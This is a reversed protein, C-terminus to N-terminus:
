VANSHPSTSLIREYVLEGDIWTAQVNVASFDAYADACSRDLLCLDAKEGVVLQRPAAGAESSPKTYLALADNASIAENPGLKGPRRVASAMAKWPNLDGFPADSGGAIGIGADVFSKLRWLHPLEHSEVEKLYADQRETIFHPQTVVTLGLKMIWEIITDDAIAAHEIRDGPHVGADEIAALSLMMEARTVCHIAVARGHVHADSIQAIVDALSPLDYDHNHIKLPGVQASNGNHGHLDVGGMITLNLPNANVSYHEFDDRDNGPTVETVGTIGFSLLKKVLPKLDPRQNGMLKRLEADGDVLRGDHPIDIALLAIAQSNFVWMRGGRHQIRIPRDPGNCDLWHRDIEGAVSPHYGIGRLWEGDSAVELAVILEEQNQVHPPGCRVSEMAAASANLHIHHDHLGPLLVGSQGDIVQEGDQPALQNGIEAIM